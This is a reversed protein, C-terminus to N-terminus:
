VSSCIAETNQIVAPVKKRILMIVKKNLSLNPENPATIKMSNNPQVSAQVILQSKGREVKM